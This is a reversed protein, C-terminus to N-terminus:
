LSDAGHTGSFVRGRGPEGGPTGDRRSVDSSRGQPLLLSLSRREM